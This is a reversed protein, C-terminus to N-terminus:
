DILRLGSHLILILDLVLRLLTHVCLLLLLRRLILLEVLQSVVSVASILATMVTIPALRSLLIFTSTNVVAVPVLPTLLLGSLSSEPIIEFSDFAFEELHILSTRISSVASKSM